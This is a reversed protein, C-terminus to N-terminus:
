RQACCKLGQRPPHACPYIGLQGEKHIQGGEMCLPLNTDGGVHMTHGGRRFSGHCHAEEHWTVGCRPLTVHVKSRPAGAAIAPTGPEKRAGRRRVSMQRVVPVLRVKEKCVWELIHMRAERGRHVWRERGHVAGLKDHWQRRAQRTCMCRVIKAPRM